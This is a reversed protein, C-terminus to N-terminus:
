GFNFETNLDLTVQMPELNQFIM